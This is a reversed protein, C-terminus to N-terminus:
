PCNHDRLTNRERGLWENIHPKRREGYDAIREVRCHSKSTRRQVSVHPGIKLVSSTWINPSKPAESMLNMLQNTM